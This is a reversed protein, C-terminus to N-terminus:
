FYKAGLKETAMQGRPQGVEGGKLREGSLGGRARSPNRYSDDLGKM